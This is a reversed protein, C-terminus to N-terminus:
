YHGTIKKTLNALPKEVNSVNGFLCNEKINQKSKSKEIESIKGKIIKIFQSVGSM